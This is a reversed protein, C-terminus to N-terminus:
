RGITKRIVFQPKDNLVMYIRGVYEGLLGLVLSNIAGCVLVILSLAGIIPVGLISFALCSVVGCLALLLAFVYSIRLPKISFGTFGNLWLSLSKSFTFGSSGSERAREDMPINVIKDTFQSVLGYLYPYPKNWLSIQDRVFSNFAFFNSFTLDKPRNMVWRSMLGNLKSGMNKLASQKKKPYAAIAMDAGAIVANVLDGVHDVPCQGDDDLSVVINGQALRFGAMKANPQGFNKSFSVVVLKDDWSARRELVDAVNDPSGDVVCITEFSEISPVATACRYLEDLVKEIYAESRYCPLVFSVRVAAVATEPTLSAESM